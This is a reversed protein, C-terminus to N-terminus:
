SKKKAPVLLEYDEKKKAPQLFKDSKEYETRTDKQKKEETNSSKKEFLEDTLKEQNTTTSNKVEAEELLGEAAVAVPSFVELVMLLALILCTFRKFIKDM